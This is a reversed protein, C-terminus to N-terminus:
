GGGVAGTGGVQGADGGQPLHPSIPLQGKTSGPIHQIHWGVAVANVHWLALTSVVAEVVVPTCSPLLQALNM